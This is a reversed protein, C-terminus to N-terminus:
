LTGWFPPGVFIRAPSGGSPHEAATKQKDRM